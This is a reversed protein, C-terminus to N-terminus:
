TAAVVYCRDFALVRAQRQVVIWGMHSLLAKPFWPKRLRLSLGPSALNHRVDLKDGKYVPTAISKLSRLRTPTDRGLSSLQNHGKM